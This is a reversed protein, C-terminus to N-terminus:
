DIKKMVNIIDDNSLVGAGVEEPLGLSRNFKMRGVASLIM